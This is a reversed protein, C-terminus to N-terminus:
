GSAKRELELQVGDKTNVLSTGSGHLSQDRMSRLDMLLGFNDNAYSKTMDIFPKRNNKSKFFRYAEEWFDKGEIGNVTVSVKTLDPNIYKESDSDGATYPEVFLLLIGKLSRRQPNVRLNIRTDSGKQFTVVEERMVHDYGFVKGISYVSHADDALIKSRIMEYELQINTLKYKLKTTDSGKVVQSGPALTLDFLLNHFLAEPYFIGHDTLIQHDLKVRIKHRFGKGARKSRCRGHYRQGWRKLPDQLIKTNPNGRAAHQRPGGTCPFPGGLDYGVTDQLATAAFKVAMKDVLARSVNQVLFNNADGGALDINFILALSGPVLVENKNLKPLSVYLTEGPRAESRDFTIRKVTCQAKMARLTKEAHASNLTESHKTQLDEQKDM